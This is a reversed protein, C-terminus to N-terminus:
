EGIRIIDNYTALVMLGLLLFLGIKMTIEQIRAPVPRRFIMEISLFIIHGGDLVPIPLLNLLGLNISILATLALVGAIGTNQAEQSIMQAIMIPGGVSELPVVREFLKVVGEATVTIMTWTQKAGAVAAQMFPLTQNDMDGSAQVGILFAQEKEGFITTRTRQEPVIHFELETNDRDLRITIPEGNTAAISDAVHEWREIPQGNITLIRDGAHVGAIAAPSGPQVHGIEPLLIFQGHSWILGWYILWALLLNFLPGAAVVILRHWAPRKSFMEHDAFTNSEEEGNEGALAVYGGLPILSLQYDTNGRKWGFIRPGFGLSFTHVGIGLSRAALYHGLEHFFILGGLVILVSFMSTM